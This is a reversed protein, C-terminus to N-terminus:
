DATTGTKKIYAMRLNHLVEQFLNEEFSDLNGKTKERLITLVDITQKAHNLDVPVQLGDPAPMEGLQMMGQTALSMIFSGFQIENDNDNNM